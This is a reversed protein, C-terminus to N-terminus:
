LKARGSYIFYHMRYPVALRLIAVIRKFDEDVSSLSLQRYKCWPCAKIKSCIHHSARSWFQGGFAQCSPAAWCRLNLIMYALCYERLGVDYVAKWQGIWQWLIIIM